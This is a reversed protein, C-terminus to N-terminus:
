RSFDMPDRKGVKPEPPPNEPRATKKTRKPKAMPTVGKLIQLDRGKNIDDVSFRIVRWGMIAAVNYKDLDEQYGSGRSHRGNIWLGGECEFALNLVSIAYDFRWERLTSFRYEREISATPFHERLHIGLLLEAENKKM